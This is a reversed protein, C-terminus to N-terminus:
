PEILNLLKGWMVCNPHWLAWHWDLVMWGWPAGETILDCPRRAGKASQMKWFM